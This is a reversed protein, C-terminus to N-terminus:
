LSELPTHPKARVPTHSFFHRPQTPPAGHSFTARERWYATLLTCTTKPTPHLNTKRSNDEFSVLRTSAHKNLLKYITAPSLLHWICVCLEVLVVLSRHPRRKELMIQVHEDRCLCRWKNASSTCKMQESARGCM